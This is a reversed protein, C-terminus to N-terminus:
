ETADLVTWIGLFLHPELFLSVCQASSRGCEFLLDLKDQGIEVATPLGLYSVKLLGSLSKTEGGIAVVCPSPEREFIHKRFAPPSVGPSRRRWISQNPQPYATVGLRLDGELVQIEGTASRPPL